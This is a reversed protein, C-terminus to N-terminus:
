NLSLTYQGTENDGFSTAGIVYTGASLFMSIRSNFGGGSDDDEAILSATARNFLGLYSDIQTSTLNITVNAGSNLTFEYYDVFAGALQCDSTALAGNVSGGVSITQVTACNLFASPAPEFPDDDDGDCALAGASLILVAMRHRM